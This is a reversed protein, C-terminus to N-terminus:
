KKVGEGTIGNLGLMEMVSKSKRHVNPLRVWAFTKEYFGPYDKRFEKKWSDWHYWNGNYFAKHNYIYTESGNRSTFLSITYYVDTEPPEELECYHWDDIWQEQEIWRKDLKPIPLLKEIEKRKQEQYDFLSIQGKITNSQGYM